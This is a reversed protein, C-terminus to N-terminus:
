RESFFKSLADLVMPQKAAILNQIWSPIYGGLDLHAIYTVRCKDPEDPVAKLIWGSILLKGRVFKSKKSEPCDPHRVSQGLMIFTTPDVQRWHLLVCFDRFSTTCFRVAKFAYYAITHCDDIRQVISADHCMSDYHRRNSPERIIRLIDLPSAPVIAVGRVCQLSSNPMTRRHIDVGEQTKVFEWAMADLDLLEMVAHEAVRSYINDHPKAKRRLSLASASTFQNNADTDELVAGLREGGPKRGQLLAATLASSSGSISDLQIGHRLAADHDAEKSDLTGFGLEVHDSDSDDLPDVFVDANDDGGDIDSDDQAIALDTRKVWSSGTTSTYLKPIVSSQDQRDSPQSLSFVPSSSLAPVVDAAPWKEDPSVQMLLHEIACRLTTMCFGTEGLMSEPTSFDLAYQLQAVLHRPMSQIVSYALVCILEDCTVHIQNSDAVTGYHDKVAESVQRCALTVLDACDRALDFTDALGIWNVVDAYPRVDHSVESDSQSDTASVSESTTANAGVREREAASNRSTDSAPSENSPIATSPLLRFFEPMELKDMTDGQMACCARRLHTDVSAYSAYYLRKLDPQLPLLTMNEVIAEIIFTCMLQFMEQVDPELDPGQALVWHFGHEHMILAGQQQLFVRVRDVVNRLVARHVLDSHGPSRISQEKFHTRICCRQENIFCVIRRAHPHASTACLMSEFYQWCFAALSHSRVFPPVWSPSSCTDVSLYKGDPEDNRSNTTATASTILDHLRTQELLEVDLSDDLQEVSFSSRRAHRRNPGSEVSLPVSGYMASSSRGHKKSRSRRRIRNFKLLENHLTGVDMWDQLPPAGVASLRHLQSESNNGSVHMANHNDSINQDVTPQLARISNNHNPSSVADTDADDAAAADAAADADSQATVNAGNDVPLSLVLERVSEICVSATTLAHIWSAADTGLEMEYSRDGTHLNILSADPPELPHHPQRKPSSSCRSDGSGSGDDGDDDGDGDGDSDDDRSESMTLRMSVQRLACRVDPDHLRPALARLSVLTQELVELHETYVFQLRDEECNPPQQRQRTHLSNSSTHSSSLKLRSRRYSSSTRGLSGSSAKPPGPGPGLVPVPM